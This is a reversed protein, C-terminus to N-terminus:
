GKEEVSDRRWVIGGGCWGEEVSGRRRVNDRRWM